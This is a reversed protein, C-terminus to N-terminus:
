TNYSSLQHYYHYHLHFPHQSDRHGKQPAELALQARKWCAVRAQVEKSERTRGTSTQESLEMTGTVWKLTELLSEVGVLTDALWQLGYYYYYYHNSCYM